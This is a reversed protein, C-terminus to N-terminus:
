AVFVVKSWKNGVDLLTLFLTCDVTPRTTSWGKTSTMIQNNIVIRLDLM